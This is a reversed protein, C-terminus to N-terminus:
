QMRQFTYRLNSRDLRGLQLKCLYHAQPLLHQRNQKIMNSHVHALHL